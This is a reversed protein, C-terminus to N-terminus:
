GGRLGSCQVSVSAAPDFDDGSPHEGSLRFLQNTAQAAGDNGPLAHLDELREDIVAEGGLVDDRAVVAAQLRERHARALFQEGADLDAHLHDPDVFHLEEVFADDLDAHLQGIGAEPDHGGAEILVIHATREARHRRQQGHGLFDGLHVRHADAAAAGRM